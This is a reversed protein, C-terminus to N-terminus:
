DQRVLDVEFDHVSGARADVELLPVEQFGGEAEVRLRYQGEPLSSFSAVGTEHSRTSESYTENFLFVGMNAIPDGEHRLHVTVQAAPKLTLTHNRVGSGGGSIETHSERVFGPAEVSVFVTSPPAYFPFGHRNSNYDVPTLAKRSGESLTWSVRADDIRRSDVESVLRIVYLIPAPVELSLPGMHAGLTVDWAQGFEHASVTYDGEPVMGMDWEIPIAREPTILVM